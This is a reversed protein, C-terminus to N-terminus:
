AGTIADTPSTVMLLPHSGVDYTIGTIGQLAEILKGEIEGKLLDYDIRNREFESTDNRERRLLRGQIGSIINLAAKCVVATNADLSGAQLADFLPTSHDAQLDFYARYLDISEDPLERYEAGFVNRVDQPTAHLPLFSSLMYQFQVRHPLADVTFDVVGYRPQYNDTGIAHHSAAISIVSSTTLTDAVAVKDLLLTGLHNRLSLKISAADPIVFEGDVMYNIVFAQDEDKIRWEM